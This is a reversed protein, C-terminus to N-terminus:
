NDIVFQPRTPPIADPCQAGAGLFGEGLPLPNPSTSVSHAACRRFITLAPCQRLGRFLGEKAFPPNSPNAGASSNVGGRMGLLVGARWCREACLMLNAATGPSTYASTYTYTYTYFGGLGGKAFPPRRSAGNSPNTGIGADNGDPRRWERGGGDNGRFRSDVGRGM